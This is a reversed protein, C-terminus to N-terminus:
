SMSIYIEETAGSAGRSATFTLSEQLLGDQDAEAIETIICNPLYFAVVNGFEGSTSTPNYAFGFLSFATNNIFRTYQAISDSQKYPNLSGSVSRSSIRSSIRGNASATSTAFGLTNEVSFTVENVPVAVGDMYVTASLVVPPLSTDLSQTYPPAAITRDFTLGEFGFKLAPLAGTSFGEMAMSNVRCGIAKEIVVDDVYKSISLTPHGTNATFYTRFAAIDVSDTCDGSPHAVLLTVTATGTGTSRATIPSVHYAGSQKIVVIDGVQLDAIDADAIQLVTATNGSSKTTVSTARNRTTGLAAKMLPATQPAAGATSGAKFEVGMAGSVSRTGTRPTVKGISGTLVSRELLEKAPNMEAGDALVAVFDAGSAPVQYTGEASEVMVAFKSNDKITLAM